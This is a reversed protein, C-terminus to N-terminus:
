KLDLEVYDGDRYVTLRTGAEEEWELLSRVMDASDGLARGNFGVVIDDVRLGIREAISGRVVSTIVAGDALLRPAALAAPPPSIRWLGLPIPATANLRLGALHAVLGAAALWFLLTEM